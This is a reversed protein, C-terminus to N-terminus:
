GSIGALPSWRFICPDGHVHAPMAIGAEKTFTV